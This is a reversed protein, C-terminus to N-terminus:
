QTVMNEKFWKDAEAIPYYIRGKGRMQLYPPGSKKSRQLQLWSCSYNYRAAAEKETLYQKGLLVVM